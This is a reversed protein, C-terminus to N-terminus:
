GGTVDVLITKKRENRLVISGSKSGSIPAKFVVTNSPFSTKQVSVAGPLSWNLLIAHDHADLREPVTGSDRFVTYRHPRTGQVTAGSSNFFVGHPQNTITVLKKALNIDRAVQQTAEQLPDRQFVSFVLAVGGVLVVASLLLTKKRPSGKM